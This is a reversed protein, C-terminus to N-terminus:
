FIEYQVEYNRLFPLSSTSVKMIRLPGKVNLGKYDIWRKLEEERRSFIERSQQGKFSLSAVKASPIGTIRIMRNIPKPANHISSSAPLIIGLDWANDKKIQFFCGSNEIKEVKFNNGEFYEQLYKTGIKLVEDYPGTLSMQACIMRQYFRLEFPGQSLLVSYRSQELTKFNLLSVISSYM